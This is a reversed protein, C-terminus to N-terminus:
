REVTETFNMRPWLEGPRKEFVIGVLQGNADLALFELPAPSLQSRAAVSGEGESLPCSSPAKTDGRATFASPALWDTMVPRGNRIELIQAESLTLRPLDALTVIAPQLYQHLDVLPVRSVDTANEIHFDGVATRDLATMVAGTDLAGGIDRGLSRIYTGSGCKVALELAPYEYRQVALEYIMVPRPKLEVEEGRRALQYARRGALKIASHAPPRQQIEGVFTALVRDLAERSPEVASEVPVVEGEVDDTDSRVGLRFTAHYCKPMRQVYQILRTAQGVCIVLVGTALPDLTGAHGVKAPRVLREVRDVVARSTMGAPKNVNMVGFM